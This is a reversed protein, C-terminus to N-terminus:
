HLFHRTGTFAMAIGLNDATEIIEKDRISGGPQVIATIGASAAENVNDDFPFLADSALVAGNSADGAFHAALRISTVRNPQGAGMGILVQDKVMTIANSKVHKCLTWAIRLDRIESESPHKKTVIHFDTETSVTSDSQQLLAGGRVTQIERYTGSPSPLNATLIRLDKSKRKLHDLAPNEADPAMIIEYFMRTGTIPSLTQRLTKSYAMDIPRNTAIIGGYASIADGKSLAMEYLTAIAMNGTAFCCPNTHKIIAIAPEKFDSVLNFAADADLVNVFSLDKGHHQTFSGIGDIVESDFIYLASKQHPNEGYRLDLRKNLGITLENPYTGVPDDSLYHSIATDYLAVHQFAKHALSKRDEISLGTGGIKEAIWGYDSPDVIVIVSPFNKAAARLLTPGGIDINELVEDLESGKKSSVERFPYLNGVVVDIPDIGHEALETVDKPITRRALIGGHINPHLTKVRGGLMEPFGTITSIQQVPIKANALESHTGGTSVLEYKLDHLVRAFDAVGTKDFVSLLAKL